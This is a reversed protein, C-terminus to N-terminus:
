LDAIVLFDKIKPLTKHGIGCRQKTLFNLSTIKNEKRYEVISKAAEKPKITSVGSKQTKIYELVEVIDKELATLIPIRIIKGSEVLVQNLMQNNIVICWVFDLNAKKAAELIQTNEIAKYNDESVLEVMVPLINKGTTEMQKALNKILAPHADSKGQVFKGPIRLIRGLEVDLLSENETFLAM